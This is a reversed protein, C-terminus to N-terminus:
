HEARQSEETSQLIQDHEEETAAAIIMDNANVHVCM